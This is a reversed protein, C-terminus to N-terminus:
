LHKNQDDKMLEILADLRQNVGVAHYSILVWLTMGVCIVSIQGYKPYTVLMPVLYLPLLLLTSLWSQAPYHGVLKLLRQRTKDRQVVIAGVMEQQEPSLQKVKEKPINM